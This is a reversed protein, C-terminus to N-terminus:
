EEVGGIAEGGDAGEACLEGEKEEEGGFVAARGRAPPLVAEPAIVYGSPLGVGDAAAGAADADGAAAAVTARPLSNRSQGAQGTSIASEGPPKM